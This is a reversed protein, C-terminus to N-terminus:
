RNLSASACYTDSYWFTWCSWSLFLCRRDDITQFETNCTCSPGPFLYAVISNDFFIM